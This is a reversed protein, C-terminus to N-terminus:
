TTNSIDLATPWARYTSGHPNRLVRPFRKTKIAIEKEAKHVEGGQRLLIVMDM